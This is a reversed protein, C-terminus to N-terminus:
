NWLSEEFLLRRLQHKRVFQVLQPEALKPQRRLWCKLYGALMLGGAVPRPRDASRRLARALMFLPSYGANYAAEGMRLRGRWLGAASGMPRHHYIRPDSLGRTAFGKMLARTVDITDWGLGGELGGITRLCSWSYIRAAGTPQFRPQSIPCWSGRRDREYLTGSAIGLREDRVFEALLVEVHNAELTVDADVRFLFESEHVPHNRLVRQVVFEGGAAREKRLDCHLAEIWSYRRAADALISGTSDSSGDDIIIWRLPRSTQAVMSRILHPLFHEENYASTIAAYTLTM